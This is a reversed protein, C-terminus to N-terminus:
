SPDKKVPVLSDKTADLVDALRNKTVTVAHDSGRQKVWYHDGEALVDLVVPAASTAGQAKREITITALPQSVDRKPDGPALPEIEAVDGVITSVKNADLSKDAPDITLQTGAKDITIKTIDDRPIDVYSAEMWEHPDASTWLSAAAYVKRDNAFRFASRRTGVPAGTFFTTDKGNATLTIKHTFDTDAVQLQKQRIEQTAIPMAAELKGIPGLLDTIKSESVPYDYGSAIVWGQGKKALDVPKGNKDTIQIRTVKAADFGALLAHEKVPAADEHRLQVAVALGVQVALLVILIKHFRTLM